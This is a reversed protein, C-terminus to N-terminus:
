FQILLANIKTDININFKEGKYETKERQSFLFYYDFEGEIRVGDELEYGAGIGVVPFLNKLKLSGSYKDDNVKTQKINNMGMHAKIYFHEHAKLTNTTVLTIILALIIYNKM